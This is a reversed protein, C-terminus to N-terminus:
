KNYYLTSFFSLWAEDANKQKGILRIEYHGLKKASLKM